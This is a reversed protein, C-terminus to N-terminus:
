LEGVLESYRLAIADNVAKTEERLAARRSILDIDKAYQQSAAILNGILAPAKARLVIRVIATHLAAVSTGIDNATGTSLVDLVLPDLAAKFQAANM